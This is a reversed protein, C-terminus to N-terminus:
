WRGQVLRRFWAYYPRLFPLYRKLTGLWRRQVTTNEVPKDSESLRKQEVTEWNPVVVHRLSEEGSNALECAYRQASAITKRQFERLRSRRRQSIFIDDPEPQQCWEMLDKHRDHFAIYNGIESRQFRRFPSIPCLLPRNPEFRRISFIHYGYEALKSLTIADHDRSRAKSGTPFTEILIVPPNQSSMYRRNGDLVEAEAGEVDVKLMGYSPRLDHQQMFGDLTIVRVRETYGENTTSAISETLWNGGSGHRHITVEAEGSYNGVACKVPCVGREFQNIRVAQVLREYIDSVPEFAYCPTTQNTSAAVLLSYYGINAGVDFFCDVYEAAKLVLITESDERSYYGDSYFVWDDRGSVVMSFGFTTEVGIWEPWMPVHLDSQWDVPSEGRKGLIKQFAHHYHERTAFAVPSAGIQQEARELEKYYALLCKHKTRIDEMEFTCQKWSGM